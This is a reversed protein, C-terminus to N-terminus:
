PSWPLEGGKRRATAELEVFADADNPVRLLFRELPLSLVADPRERELVGAVFMSTHVFVLRRFTQQLFPVLFDCFSEGFLVCSPGPREQELWMVRGHNHVGNDFLLRGRPQKFRARIIPGTLPEPRVKRGLDGDFTAEVWELDSEEVLELGVGRELLDECLMRYAVYAGRYNWHTDTRSYVEREEKAALMRDLAYVVPAGVMEAIELFEHVPRHGSPRISDPLYEPYVSEKDPVVACSWPIGLGASTAIRGELVQRWGAKQEEDMKVRGTHQGVIDNSDDRLYLWGQKGFLVKESERDEPTEVKWTPGEAGVRHDSVACRLRALDARSGDAFVVRILIVGEGGGGARLTVRFGSTIASPVDPFGRAIDPREQDIPADGITGRVPDVMEISAPVAANGIAWGQVILRERNPIGRVHGRGHESFAPTQEVDVQEITARHL